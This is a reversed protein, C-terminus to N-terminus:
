RSILTQPKTRILLFFLGGEIFAFGCLDLVVVLFYGLYELVRHYCIIISQASKSFRQTEPTIRPNNFPMETEERLDTLVNPGNEPSAADKWFKFQLQFSISRM